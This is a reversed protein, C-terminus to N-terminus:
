NRGNKLVKVIESMETLIAQPACAVEAMQQQTLSAVSRLYKAPRRYRTLSSPSVWPGRSMMTADSVGHVGDMSAGGHRQQHVTAPTVCAQLRAEMFLQQYRPKTLQFLLPGKAPVQMILSCVGSLWSRAEHTNGITKCLDFTGDKAPVQAYQPFLNLTWWATAPSASRVPPRLEARLAMPMDSARAYLDFGILMAASIM